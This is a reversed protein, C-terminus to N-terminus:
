ETCSICILWYIFLFSNMPELMPEPSLVSFLLGVNIHQLKHLGTTYYECLKPSGWDKIFLTLKEPSLIEMLKPETIAETKFM